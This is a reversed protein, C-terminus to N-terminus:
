KRAEKILWEDLLKKVVYSRNGIRVVFDHEHERLFARGKTKGIHIYACVEDINLLATDSESVLERTLDM